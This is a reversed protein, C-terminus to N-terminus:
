HASLLNKYVSCSKKVSLPQMPLATAEHTLPVPNSGRSLCQFSHPFNATLQILRKFIFTFDEISLLKGTSFRSGCFTPGIILQKCYDVSTACHPVELQLRGCGAVSLPTLSSLDLQSTAGGVMKPQVGSHRTCLIFRHLRLAVLVVPVCGQLMLM